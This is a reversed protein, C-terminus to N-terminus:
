LTFFALPSRVSSPRLLGLTDETGNVKINPILAPNQMGEVETCLGTVKTTPATSTTLVLYICSVFQM